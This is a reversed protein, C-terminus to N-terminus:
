TETYRQPEIHHLAVCHLLPRVELHSGTKLQLATGIKEAKISRRRM